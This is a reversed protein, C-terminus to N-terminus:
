LVRRITHNVLMPMPEPARPHSILSISFPFPPTYFRSPQSFSNSPPTYIVLKRNGELTEPSNPTPSSASPSSISPNPTTEGNAYGGNIAPPANSLQSLYDAGGFQLPSLRQSSRQSHFSSVTSLLVFAVLFRMTFLRLLALSAHQRIPSRLLPSLVKYGLVLLSRSDSNRVTKAVTIHEM